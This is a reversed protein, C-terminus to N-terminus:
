EEELPLPEQEEPTATAAQIGATVYGMCSKATRGAEAKVWAVVAEAVKTPECQLILAVDHASLGAETMYGFVKDRTTTSLGAAPAVPAEQPAENPDIVEGELVTREPAADPAVEPTEGAAEPFLEDPVEDDPPPLMLRGIPQTSAELLQRIEHPSELQLVHVTKKKGDPAVEQPVLRLKLPIGAIKDGTLLRIMAVTNNINSIGHISSTDIQWIGIGPVGDLFFQLMMLRNCGKAEYLPCPACGDYGEGACDIVQRIVRKTQSSAWTILEIAGGSRTLEDADLMADAKYGDGRCIRGASSKYAYFYQTAFDEPDHSPFRIDLEQPKEGYAAHFAEALPHDDHIVFYDVASPYQGKQGDKKIGLHLKGLRPLQRRETLNRIPM